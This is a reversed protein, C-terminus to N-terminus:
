DPRLRVGPEIFRLNQERVERAADDYLFPLFMYRRGRTVLTAEHLLSCSFVVAGGVPAEHLANSFEPFRLKGGAYEGTNLFLSVAFRRHATGKTTNDRHGKFHGSEDADYCAVIHREIRNARFQFAREIMPVLRDHVRAVCATRLAEDEITADRRRKHRAQLVGVTRGDVERMFGSEEGGRAEYHAILDRCLAPEFVRPVVLIPAQLQAPFAPARPELQDLVGLLRAVHAQVPTSVPLAAVIRLAPDLVYTIPCYRGDEQMAGYLASVSRDFDWFFRVGPIRDQTAGRSPDAPDVSVGFFCLDADNCRQFLAELEELLRAVVPDAASGLFSIVVTRGAVTDFAYDENTRTRCRFWPAPTGAPLAPMGCVM